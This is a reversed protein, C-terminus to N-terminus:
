FCLTHAHTQMHMHAHPSSLPSLLNKWSPNRSPPAEQLPQATAPATRSHWAYACSVGREATDSRLPCLLLQPLAEKSVVIETEGYDFLSWVAKGGTALAMDRPTVSGGHHEPICAVKSNKKKEGWCFSPIKTVVTLDQSNIIAQSFLRSFFHTTQLATEPDYALVKKRGLRKITTGTLSIGM